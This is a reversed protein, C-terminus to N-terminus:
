KPVRITECADYRFKYMAPSVFVDATSGWIFGSVKQATAFNEKLFYRNVTIPIPNNIIDAGDAIVIELENPLVSAKILDSVNNSLITVSGKGQNISNGEGTFKWAGATIYKKTIDNPAQYIRVENSITEGTTSDITEYTITYGGPNNINYAEKYYTYFKSLSIKEVNEDTCTGEDDETFTLCVDEVTANKIEKMKNDVMINVGTTQASVNLNDDSSLIASLFYYNTFTTCLEKNEWKINTTPVFLNIDYNEDNYLSRVKIKIDVTDETFNYVLEEIDLSSELKKNYYSYDSELFSNSVNDYNGYTITNNDISLMRTGSVFNNSENLYEVYLILKNDIKEVNLINVKKLDEMINRTILNKDKLYKTSYFLDENDDKYKILLNTLSILIVFILSFSVIIEVLMYGKKNIKKM